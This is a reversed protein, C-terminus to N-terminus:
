SIKGGSPRHEFRTIDPAEVPDGSRLRQGAELLRPVIVEIFAPDLPIVEGSARGTAGRENAITDRDSTRLLWRDGFRRELVKLAWVPDRMAAQTLTGALRVELDTVAKQVLDRFAAHEPRSGRMYRYLSAASFGAYRAAVEPFSGAAIAKIFRETAEPSLRSPRAM